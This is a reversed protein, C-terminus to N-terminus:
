LIEKFILVRMTLFEGNCRFTSFETRRPNQVAYFTLETCVNRSLRDTGDDLIQRKRCQTFDWFLASIVDRCFGSIM